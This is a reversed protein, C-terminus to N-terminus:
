SRYALAAQLNSRDDRAGQSLDPIILTFASGRGVESQFEISGGLLEIFQKVIYLGLGIGEHSRHESSDAQRFKEFIVPRLEESIGIGTDAVKFEIAQKEPLPCASITVSGHDTFKIANNILNQLIQKLKIGDTVTKSLNGDYDWYM